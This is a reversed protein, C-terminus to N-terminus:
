RRLNAAYGDPFTLTQIWQLIEKRQPRSLIFDAKPRTWRRGPQPSRMEQKPRDCLMELDLRSKHNDKSKETDMLTGWLAEIINKKTHMVDINHSLLLDDYYPLSKLGSKCMHEQGYGAFHGDRENFKLADIQAHVEAGTLMRPPPDIVM